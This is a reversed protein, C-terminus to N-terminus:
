ADYWNSGDFFIMNPTGGTAQIIVVGTSAEIANGGADKYSGGAYSTAVPLRLFGYKNIVSNSVSTDRITTQLYPQSQSTSAPLLQLVVDSVLGPKISTCINSFETENTPEKGLRLRRITTDQDIGCILTGIAVVDDPTNKPGTQLKIQM